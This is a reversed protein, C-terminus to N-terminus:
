MMEWFTKYANVYIDADTGWKDPPRIVWVCYKDGMGMCKEEIAVLPKKFFASCWGSAYGMLSWCVPEKALRHFSLHQEAEFSNEWIGKFFFHGSIRDFELEKPEAKGIGEWTHIAPGSSLLEKEDDFDYNLYMQKFDSYGNQFGFKLFFDRAKKFGLHEILDQRLLGIANVDFIVLRSNRFQIIGTENSFEIEKSLNFDKAKM